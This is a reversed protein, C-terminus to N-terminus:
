NNTQINKDNNWLQMIQQVVRPNIPYTESELSSLQLKLYTNIYERKNLDM